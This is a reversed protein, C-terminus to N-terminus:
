SVFRDLGRRDRVNTLYAKRAERGQPAVIFINQRQMHEERPKPIGRWLLSVFNCFTGVSPPTDGREKLLKCGYEVFNKRRWLNYKTMTEILREDGLGLLFTHAVLRRRGNEEEDEEPMGSHFPMAIEKLFTRFGTRKVLTKGAKTSLLSRVSDAVREDTLLPRTIPSCLLTGIPFLSQFLSEIEWWLAFIKWELVLLPDDSEEAYISVTRRGAAFSKSTYRFKM